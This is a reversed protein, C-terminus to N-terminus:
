SRLPRYNSLFTEAGACVNCVRALFSRLFLTDRGINKKNGAILSWFELGIEGAAKKKIVRSMLTKELTGYYPGFKSRNTLLRERSEPRNTMERFRELAYKKGERVTMIADNKETRAKKELAM